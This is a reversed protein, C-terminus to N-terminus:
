IFLIHIFFSITVSGTHIQPDSRIPDPIRFKPHSAHIYPIHCDGEIAEKLAPIYIPWNNHELAEIYHQTHVQFLHKCHTTTGTSTSYTTIIYEPDGECLERTFDILFFGFSM